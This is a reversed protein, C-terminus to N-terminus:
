RQDIHSRILNLLEKIKIASKSVFYDAGLRYAAQRYDNSDFNTLVVVITQPYLMKIKRTMKLGNGGPLHIDLFILSPPIGSLTALVKEASEAEEIDIKDLHRMLFSRFVKRFMKNQDAILLWFV